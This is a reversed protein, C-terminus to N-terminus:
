ISNQRGTGAQAGQRCLLRGGEKLERLGALASLDVLGRAGIDVLLVRQAWQKLDHSLLCGRSHCTEQKVIEEENIQKVAGAPTDVIHWAIQLGPIFIFVNGGARLAWGHELSLCICLFLCMWSTRYHLSLPAWFFPKKIETTFLSSCFTESPSFRSLSVLFLSM